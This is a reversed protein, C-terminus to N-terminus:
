SIEVTKNIKDAVREAAKRGSRMAGDISSMENYDGCLFIEGVMKRKRTESYFGPAQVPQAHPISYARIMKWESVSEGFWQKLNKQIDQEIDKSTNYDDDLVTVSILAEDKPAYEISAESMVALNNIVGNKEANLVLWPGNIPSQRARFYICHVSHFPIEPFSEGLLKRSAPAETALVVACGEVKEGNSLKISTSDIADVSAHFHIFERGIRDALQQTIKGMGFRPVSVNGKSMMKMIFEALQGSTELDSSLFIGGLFSRYFSDIMKESFGKERLYSETSEDHSSFISQISKTSVEKKWSAVRMKDSLSGIPAGLSEKILSPKRIPDAVRHFKGDLHIMAGPELPQLELSEYDLVKSCEPYSELFVQFGRDLLFGDVLDTRVRGGIDDSAEFLQFPIGLHRLRLACSLGALGGGVILVPKDHQFQESTM